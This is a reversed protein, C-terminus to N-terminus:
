AQQKRWKELGKGDMAKEAKRVESMNQLKAKVNWASRQEGAGDWRGDPGPVAYEPRSDFVPAQAGIAATQQAYLACREQYGYDSTSGLAAWGSAESASFGRSPGVHLVERTAPPSPTRRSQAAPEPRLLERLKDAPILYPPPKKDGMSDNTSHQPRNNSTTTTIFLCVSQPCRYLRNHLTDLRTLEVLLPSSVRWQHVDACLPSPASMALDNHAVCVDLRTEKDTVGTKRADLCQMFGAATNKNVSPGEEFRKVHM